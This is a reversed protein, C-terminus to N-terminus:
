GWARQSMRYRDDAVAAPDAAPDAAAALPTM